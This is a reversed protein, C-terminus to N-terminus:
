PPSAPEIACSVVTAESGGRPVVERGTGPAGSSACYGPSSEVRSMRGRGISMAEVPHGRSDDRIPALEVEIQGRLQQPLADLLEVLELAPPGPQRAQPDFTGAQCRSRDKVSSDSGWERVTHLDPDLDYPDIRRAGDATHDAPIQDAIGLDEQSWLIGIGADLHRPGDLHLLGGHPECGADGTWEHLPSVVADHVDRDGPEPSPYM